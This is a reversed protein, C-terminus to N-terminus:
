KVTCGCGCDGVSVEKVEAKKEDAASTEVNEKAALWGKIGPAFHKVNTYGLKAAAEAAAKYAPCQESGCYAVILAGKDAPLKEALNDKLAAFDLAGPIHHKVYSETGNADLLVVKKEAIATKLDALSINEFKEESALVAAGFLLWVAPLVLVYKQM